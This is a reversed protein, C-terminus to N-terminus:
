TLVQALLQMTLPKPIYSKIFPYRQNIINDLPEISNSVLHVHIPVNLNNNIKEFHELFEWGDMVPMHIDLFIIAPLGSENKLNIELDHLLMKGNKYFDAKIFPANRLLNKVSYHYMLDDDVIAISKIPRHNLMSFLEIQLDLTVSSLLESGCTACGFSQTLVAEESLKVPVCQYGYVSNPCDKNFCYCITFTSNKM